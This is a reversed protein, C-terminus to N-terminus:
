KRYQMHKFNSSKEPSPNPDPHLRTPLGALCLLRPVAARSLVLLRRTRQWRGATPPPPGHNPWPPVLYARLEGLPEPSPPALPFLSRSWRQMKSCPSFSSTSSSMVGYSSRVTRTQRRFYYIFSFPFCAGRIIRHPEKFSPAWKDM